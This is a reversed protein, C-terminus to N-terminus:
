RGINRPGDNRPGENRPGDNRPGDNRPGDNRPGDNRPGDNRPGDNRPGDNRPGDNRPAFNSPGRNEQNRPQPGQNITPPGMNMRPGLPQNLMQPGFLHPMRNMSQLAQEPRKRDQEMDERMMAEMSKLTRNINRLLELAEPHMPALNPQEHHEPPSRRSRQSKKDPKSRRHDRSKERRDEKENDMRVSVLKGSKEPENQNKGDVNGPTLLTPLGAHERCNSCLLIGAASNCRESPLHPILLEQSPLNAPCLSALMIAASGLSFIRNTVPM